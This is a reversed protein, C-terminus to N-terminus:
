VRLTGGKLKMIQQYARWLIRRERLNPQPTESEDFWMRFGNFAGLSPHGDNRDPEVVFAFSRKEELHRFRFRVADDNWVRHEDFLWTRALPKKERLYPGFAETATNIIERHIENEQRGKEEHVATEGRGAETARHLRDLSYGEAIPTIHKACWGCDDCVRDCTAIHDFADAPEKYGFDQSICDEMGMYSEVTSVLNDTPRMRGEIKMVDVLGEYRPLDHPLVINQAMIWPEAAKTINCWTHLDRAARRSEEPQISNLMVTQCHIHQAPCHPLCQNNVVMKITMSMRHIQWLLESRKNVYFYLTVCDAQLDNKWYRAATPNEIAASLSATIYLGPYRQRLQRALHFNMVSVMMWRTDLWKDFYAFLDDFRTSAPINSNLLINTRIGASALRQYLEMFQEHYAEPEGGRWDLYLSPFVSPHLPVYVNHTIDAYDNCLRDLWDTDNNYPLCFSFGCDKFRTARTSSM